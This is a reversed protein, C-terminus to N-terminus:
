IEKKMNIRTLQNRQVIIHKIFLCISLGFVKRHFKLRMIPMIYNTTSSRHFFKSASSFFIQILDKLQRPELYVLLSRISPCILYAYPHHFETTITSGSSHKLQPMLRVSCGVKKRNLLLLFLSFRIFILRIPSSSGDHICHFVDFLFLM